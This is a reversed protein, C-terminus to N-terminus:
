FVVSQKRLLYIQPFKQQVSALFFSSSSIACICRSHVDWSTSDFGLLRHSLYKVIRQQPPPRSDAPALTTTSLALHHPVSLNHSLWSWSSCSCSLSCCINILNAVLPSLATPLGITGRISSEDLEVQNPMKLILIKLILIKLITQNFFFCWLKSLIYFIFMGFFTCFRFWTQVVNLNFLNSYTDM